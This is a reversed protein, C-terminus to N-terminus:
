VGRIVEQVLSPGLSIENAMMYHYYEGGGRYFRVLIKNM